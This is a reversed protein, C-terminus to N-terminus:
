SLLISPLCSTVDDVATLSKHGLIMVDIINCAKDRIYLSIDDYSSTKAHSMLHRHDMQFFCRGVCYPSQMFKVHGQFIITSKFVMNYLILM